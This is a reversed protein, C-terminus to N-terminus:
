DDGANDAAAAPPAEKKGGKGWFRMKGMMAGVDLKKKEGGGEDGGGGAGKAMRRGKYWFGLLGFVLACAIITVVLIWALHGPGYTPGGSGGGNSYPSQGGPNSSSSGTNGNNGNSNPNYGGYVGPPPDFESPQPYQDGPGQGPPWQYNPPPPYPLFQTPPTELPDTAKLAHRGKRGGRRSSSAPLLSSPLLYFLTEFPIFPILSPVRLSPVGASTAESAPDFGQASGAGSNGQGGTGTGGYWGGPANTESPPPYQTHPGPPWSYDPPPPYPLYATPPTEVPTRPELQLFRPTIKHLLGQLKDFNFTRSPKPDEHPLDIIRKEPIPSVLQAILLLPIVIASLAMWRPQFFRM